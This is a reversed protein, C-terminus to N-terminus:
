TIQKKSILGQSNTFKPSINTGDNAFIKEWETYRRMNNITKKTTCLEQFYNPVM